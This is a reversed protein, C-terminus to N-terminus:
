HVVEGQHLLTVGATYIHCWAEDAPHALSSPAAKEHLFFLTLGSLSGLLVLNPELVVLGGGGCLFHTFNSVLHTNCNSWAM